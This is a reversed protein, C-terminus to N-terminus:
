ERCWEDRQDSAPIRPIIHERIFGIRSLLMEALDPTAPAAVPFTKDVAGGDLVAQAWEEMLQCYGLLACGADPAHDTVLYASPMDGVVVWLWDDTGKIKTAFKFLFVAVVGGLGYGFFREAIPACWKFSKLYAEAREFMQRLSVTEDEDEGVMEEITTVLDLDVPLTM